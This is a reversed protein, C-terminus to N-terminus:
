HIRLWRAKVGMGFCGKNYAGKVVVNSLTSKNEHLFRAMDLDFEVLLALEELLADADDPEAEAPDVAGVVAEVEAEKVGENNGAVGSWLGSLTM